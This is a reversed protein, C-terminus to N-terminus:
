QELVRLEVVHDSLSADLEKLYADDDLNDCIDEAGDKSEMDYQEKVLESDVSRNVTALRDAEENRADTGVVTDESIDIDAVLRKEFLEEDDKQQQPSDDFQDPIPNEMKLKNKRVTLRHSYYQTIRSITTSHIKYITTLTIRRISSYYYQTIRSIVSHLLVPYNQKIIKYIRQKPKTKIRFIGTRKLPACRVWLVVWGVVWSAPTNSHFVM